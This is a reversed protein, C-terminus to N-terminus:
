KGFDQCFNLRSFPHFRVSRCTSSTRPHHQPNEPDSDPEGSGLLVNTDRDLATGGHGSADLEELAKLRLWLKFFLFSPTALTVFTSRRLFPPSPSSQPHSLTISLHFQSLSPPALPFTQYSGTEMAVGPKEWGSQNSGGERGGDVGGSQRRKTFIERQEKTAESSM